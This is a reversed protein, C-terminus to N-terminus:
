RGAPRARGGRRLRCHARRARCSLRAGSARRCRSRLPWAREWSRQGRLSVRCTPRGRAEGEPADGHGGAPPVPRTRSTDTSSPVVVATTDGDGGRRSSVATLPCRRSADQPRRPRPGSAVLVRAARRLRRGPGIAELVARTSTRWLRRRTWSRRIGNRCHPWRTRKSGAATRSQSSCQRSSGRRGAGPGQAVRVGTPPVVPSDSGVGLTVV